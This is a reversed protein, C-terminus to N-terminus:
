HVEDKLHNVGKLKVLLKPALMSSKCIGMEYRRCGAPMGYLKHRGRRTVARLRFNALRWVIAVGPLAARLAVRAPSDGSSVLRSLRQSLSNRMARRPPKGVSLPKTPTSPGRSTSSASREPHGM